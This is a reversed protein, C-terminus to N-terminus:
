RPDPTDRWPQELLACGSSRVKSSTITERGGVQGQVHLLEELGEQAWAAVVWYIRNSLLLDQGAIQCHMARGQWYAVLKLSIGIPVEGAWSNTLEVNPGVHHYSDILSCQPLSETLLCQHMPWRVRAKPFRVKKKKKKKKTIPFTHRTSPLLQTERSLILTSTKGVINTSSVNIVKKARIHLKISVTYLGQLLLSLIGWTKPDRFSM